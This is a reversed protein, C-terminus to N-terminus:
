LADNGITLWPFVSWSNLIVRGCSPPVLLDQLQQWQPGDIVSQVGGSPNVLKNPTM